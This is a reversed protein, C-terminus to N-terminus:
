KEVKELEKEKDGALDLQYFEESEPLAMRFGATLDIEIRAQRTRCELVHGGSQKKEDIFHFHYGPVNIGKVYAPCRFGVLTGRVNRFEFTPQSEVVNVLLPYPKEQEPVSRAKLYEFEGVVKIAYFVNDTPLADSLFREMGAYDMPEEVALRLDPEFFTVAAFPTRTSGEVPRCVGDSGIRYFRGDLAVMEGDLGQFTGLGFDGHEGLERFTVQGDYLGQLLADITSIQFLVDHQDAAHAFAALTLPLLLLPVLRSFRM